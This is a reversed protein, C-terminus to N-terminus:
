RKGLTKIVRGLVHGGIFIVLFEKILREYLAQDFQLLSYDFQSNVLQAVEDKSLLILECAGGTSQTIVGEIVAVCISM